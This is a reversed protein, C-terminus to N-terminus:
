LYFVKDVIDFYKEGIKAGLIITTNEKNQLLLEKTKKNTKYDLLELMEDFVIMNVNLILMKMISFKQFQSYSLKLIDKKFDEVSTEFERCIDEIKKIFIKNSQLGDDMGRTDINNTKDLVSLTDDYFNSKLVHMKSDKSLDIFMNKTDYNHDKNFDKIIKTLASLRDKNHKIIILNIKHLFCKGSNPMINMMDVNNQTVLSEFYINDKLNIDLKFENLKNNDIILINDSIFQKSIFTQFYIVIMKFYSKIKKLFYSFDLYEDKSFSYNVNDIILVKPKNLLQCVVTFKLKEFETIINVDKDILNKLDFINLFEIFYERTHLLVSYDNVTLLIEDWIKDTILLSDYETPIYSIYKSINKIEKLLIGDFLIEGDIYELNNSILLSLTTKGTGAAGCISVFSEEEIEFNLDDFVNTGDPYYYTLNKIKISAM